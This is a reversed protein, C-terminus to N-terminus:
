STVRQINAPVTNATDVTIKITLTKEGKTTWGAHHNGYLGQRQIRWKAQCIWLARHNLALGRVARARL